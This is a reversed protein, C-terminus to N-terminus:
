PGKLGPLENDMPISFLGAIDPPSVGIYPTSLFVVPILVDPSAQRPLMYYSVGGFFAVVAILLAITPSAKLLWRFM